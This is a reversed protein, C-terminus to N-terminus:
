ITTVPGFAAVALVTALPLEARPLRGVSTLQTGVALVALGGLGTLVEVTGNQLGQWRLFRRKLTGLRRGNADIQALRQEASALRGQQQDLLGLRQTAQELAAVRGLEREIEALRAIQQELAGVRGLQGEVAALRTLQQELAAIRRAEASRDLEPRLWAWSLAAVIAAGIVGGVIAAPLVRRRRPPPATTSPAPEVTPEPEAPQDRTEAM